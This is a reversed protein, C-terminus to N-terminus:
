EPVSDTVAAANRAAEEQPGLRNMGGMGMGMGGGMGGMGMGRRTGM